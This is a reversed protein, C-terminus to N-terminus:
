INNFCLMFMEILKLRVSGIMEKAMKQSRDRPRGKKPFILGGGAM